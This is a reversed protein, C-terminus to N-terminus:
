FLVIAEIGVGGTVAVVGQLYASITDLRVANFANAAVTVALGAAVSVTTGGAGAVPVTTGSAGDITVVVAVGTINHLVLIQNANPTYTIVDAASLVTKTPVFVGSQSLTTQSLTAM